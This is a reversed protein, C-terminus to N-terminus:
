RPQILDWANGYLDEFVAVDGYTEHRPEERFRVGATVMRAHDAAFDDTALFHMVRGGGPDGVRDAQEPTSARALLVQTGESGAPRVVVWRTGDGRDTDEVLEFGALDRFWDLAEDYDRVLVTVLSLRQTM